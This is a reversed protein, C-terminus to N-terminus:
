EAINKGAANNDIKPKDPNTEEDVEIVESVTNGYKKEVESKAIAPIRTKMDLDKETEANVEDYDGIHENGLDDMAAKRSKVKAYVKTTEIEVLEKENQPLWIDQGVSLMLSAYETPNGEVKGVLRKFVEVLRKVPHFFKTWMAQCWQIEPVFMIKITTSSDSGQKLIEPEIFVSMTSRIINETLKKINLEAINSADPPTLYKADSNKVTESDGSVGLVKGHADMPPLSKVNGSKIFLMPFASAKVEESMYSLARELAEISDQAVGSPIDPVRFYIVQIEDNGTQNENRYIRVYGDESVDYEARPAFELLWKKDEENKLDAMVWTERYETNFVDVAKREKYVYQRYLVPKRDADEDPYLIDGNNRSFIQYEIDNGRQYLYIAGDGTTFCSLVVEMFATQLGVKDTWSKFRQYNADSKNENAIWFGKGAFHSAKKISFAYQLGLSVQELDDYGKIEWKEKGTEPDKEGTPAYIPRKSLYESMIKHASPAIENMLDEQTLLQYNSDYGNFYPKRYNADTRITPYRMGGDPPIRRKWYDKKLHATINM